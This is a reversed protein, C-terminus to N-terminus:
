IENGNDSKYLSREEPGDYTSGTPDITRLPRYRETEECIHAILGPVRAILFFANAVAPSFGIGGLVAAIAGTVNLPLERGLSEVIARGIALLADIHKGSLDRERAMVLLRDTRPDQTHIKHGFGSIHKKKKRYEEVIGRTANDIDLGDKRTKDLCEEITVLCAEVSGGHAKSIALIGGAVAANLPAGGSTINLAALCSPPNTGHDISSVLVADIIEAVNRDPLEGKLLLYIVHAFSMNGMLEDVPYGRISIKNPEIKTIATKWEM